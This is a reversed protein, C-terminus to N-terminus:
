NKQPSCDAVIISNKENPVPTLALCQVCDNAKDSTLRFSLEDGENISAPFACSNEVTFVNEYTKCSSENNWQPAYAVGEKTQSIIKIVRQGCIGKKVLIGSFCQGSELSKLNSQLENKECGNNLSFSIILLGLTTLTKM